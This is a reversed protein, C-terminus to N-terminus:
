SEGLRGGPRGLPGWPADWTAWLGGLLPGLVGSKEWFAGFDVWFAGLVTEPASKARFANHFNNKTLNRNILISFGIFLPERISRVNRALHAAVYSDISMAVVRKVRYFVTDWAHGHFRLTSRLVRVIM